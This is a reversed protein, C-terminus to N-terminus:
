KAYCFKCVEPIEGRLHAERFENMDNSDWIKKIKESISINECNEFEYIDPNGIICCPVVRNDSSIYLRSFPWPCINNEKQSYKNM